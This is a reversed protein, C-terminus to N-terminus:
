DFNLGNFTLDLYNNTKCLSGLGTSSFGDGEKKVFKDLDNNKFWDMDIPIELICMPNIIFLYDENDSYLNEISVLLKSESIKHLIRVYPIIEYNEICDYIAIRLIDGTNVYKRAENDIIIGNWQTIYKTEIM